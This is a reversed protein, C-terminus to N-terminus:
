LAELAKKCKKIVWNCFKRKEPISKEEMFKQFRGTKNYCNDVNLICKPCNSDRRTGARFLECLPCKDVYELYEPYAVNFEDLEDRGDRDEDLNDKIWTFKFITKEIAEKPTMYGEMDGSTIGALREL